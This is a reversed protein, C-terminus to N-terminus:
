AGVGLRHELVQRLRRARGKPVEHRVRGGSAVGRGVVDEEVALAVNGEPAGGAPRSGEELLRLCAAASLRVVRKELHDGLWRLGDNTPRVGFRRDGTLARLGVSLLRWGGRGEWAAFPWGSSTHLWISDGRVFWGWSALREAAVGWEDALRGLAEDLREGSPESEGDGPFAAPVPAWGPPPESRAGSALEGAGAGVEGAESEGEKRLRALFLGGSDLQHPWVRWARELGPHFSRGGFRTLGPAHPADLPIPELAVPEEWLVRDVVAENEEPAFTCTAYLVSGGPRVLRVARRLLSEQASTVREVFSPDRPLPEGDRARLNGEASCPADVLVRDFAAGGPLNRGDAAVVIVGSHGVRYVNGLLGRLRKESVDAAILAGRDEMLDALHTTKGGPAACLDLVREGPRAGLAPAALGMVAQQIYFLGLWHELTQSAPYPAEVVRLFGPVAPIPELRFGSGELRATLDEPSIRGTRVRIATPEPTAVVRRFRDWDPVIERYRALTM